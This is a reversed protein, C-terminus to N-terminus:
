GAMVKLDALLAALDAMVGRLAPLDALGVVREILPVTRRVLVRTAAQDVSRDHVWFLVVGMHYLWLVEPLESRVIDPVAPDAGAVVLDMLGIAADRAPASAASFPSLPSSPDAASRFFGVAFSHQPAMLDFWLDLHATLREALGTVGALVGPLREGHEAATRGYFGQVLEDKSRFYYYANGLSVGASESIARMTTADYGRETFLTLAADIIAGRTQEGRPQKARRVPVAGASSM